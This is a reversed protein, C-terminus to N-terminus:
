FRIADALSVRRVTEDKRRAQAPDERRQPMKGMDPVETGFSMGPGYLGALGLTAGPTPGQQGFTLQPSAGDRSGAPEVHWPEHAMPFHLGHNGANAHVWEQASPDLYKFDAALGHNHRSRGPPAVWKRAADESGYKAVADAFLREQIEPSRFGSTLRLNQAIEPPAASFLGVLASNFAPDFQLADPRTAGGVLYPSWDFGSM